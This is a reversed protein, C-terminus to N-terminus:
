PRGLGFRFSRFAKRTAKVLEKQGAGLAGRRTADPPLAAARGRPRRGRARRPHRDREHRAPARTACSTAPRTTSARRATPACASAPSSAPSRPQAPPRRPDAAARRRQGRLAPAHAPARHRGDAARRAARPLARARGPGARRPARHRRRLAAHVAPELQHKLETLGDGGAVILVAVALSWSRRSRPPSGGRRPPRLRRRVLEPGTPGYEPLVLGPRAEETATM